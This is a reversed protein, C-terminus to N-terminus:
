DHQLEILSLEDCCACLYNTNLRIREVQNTYATLKNRFEKDTDRLNAIVKLSHIVTAHDKGYYSGIFALSRQNSVLSHMFYMVLQRALVREAKQSKSAIDIAPVNECDCVLEQVKYFYDDIYSQNFKEM